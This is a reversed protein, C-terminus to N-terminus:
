EFVEAEADEIGPPRREVTWTGHHGLHLKGGESVFTGEIVDGDIEGHFTTSVQCGCGPDDYPEMAGTITGGHLRVFRVRLTVPPQPPSPVGGSDSDVGRRPVMVVDGTASHGDAELAFRIRGQRGSEISSYHGWWSGVLREVTEDSEVPVTPPPAAACGAVLPLALLAAVIVTRTPRAAATSSM